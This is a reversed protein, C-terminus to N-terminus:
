WRPRRNCVPARKGIFLGRPISDHTPHTAPDQNRQQQEQTRSGAGKRDFAAMERQGDDPSLSLRTIPDYVPYYVGGDVMFIRVEFNRNSRGSGHDHPFALRPVGPFHQRLVPLRARYNLAANVPSMQEQPWGAPGFLPEDNGAAGLHRGFLLPREVKVVPNSLSPEVFMTRCVRLLRAGSRFRSADHSFNLQRTSSSAPSRRLGSSSRTFNRAMEALLRSSNKSTRTPPRNCCSSSPCLGVVGSPSEM